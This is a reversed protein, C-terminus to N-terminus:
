SHLVCITGKGAEHLRAFLMDTGHRCDLETETVTQIEEFRRDLGVRLSINVAASKIKLRKDQQFSRYEAKGAKQIIYLPHDWWRWCYPIL